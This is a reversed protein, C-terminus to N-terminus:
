RPLRAYAELAELLDEDNMGWLDKGLVANTIAQGLRLDPTVEALERLTKLTRSKVRQM